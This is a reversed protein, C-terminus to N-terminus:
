RCATTSCKASYALARLRPVVSDSDLESAVAVDDEFGRGILEKGSVSDRLTEPLHAAVSQFVGIAAAAEPSRTGGLRSLVAGAGVHDELAPRLAGNPWREGCAIVAIRPGCSRAARAVAGANRLCGAFTPTEGTALSLTRREPVAARHPQRAAPGDVVKALAFVRGGPAPRCAPREEVECLRRGHRRGVPVSVGNSGKGCRHLGRDLLLACGRDRRRRERSRSVCRGAAGM